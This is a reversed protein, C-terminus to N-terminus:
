ARVSNNNPVELFIGEAEKPFIPRHGHRGHKDKHKDDGKHHHKDHKDHKGHHKHDDHHKHHKDGHGHHHDHSKVFSPEDSSQSHLQDRMVGHLYAEVDQDLGVAVNHIKHKVQRRHGSADGSIALLVHWLAVLTVVSLLIRRRNFTRTEPATPQSAQDSHSPLAEGAEVQKDSLMIMSYLPRNIFRFVIQTSQDSTLVHNKPHPRHVM